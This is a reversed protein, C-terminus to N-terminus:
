VWKIGLLHKHQQLSYVHQISANVKLAEALKAAGDDGIENATFINGFCRLQIGQLDLHQLLTNSKLFESLMEAGQNGIM